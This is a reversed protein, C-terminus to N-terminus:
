STVPRDAVSYLHDTIIQHLDCMFAFSVVVKIKDRLRRKSALRTVDNAFTEYLYAPLRLQMFIGARTDCSAFPGTYSKLLLDLGMAKDEYTLDDPM